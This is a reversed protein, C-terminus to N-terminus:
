GYTGALVVEDMWEVTCMPEISDDREAEVDAGALVELPALPLLLSLPDAM